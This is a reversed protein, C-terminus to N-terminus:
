GAATVANPVLPSLEGGALAQSGERFMHDRIGMILLKPSLAKGTAYAPCVDQCRGCETCSMVDLMQKWTLDAVTGAGFRLDSEDEAEFVLPEGRGPASSTPRPM